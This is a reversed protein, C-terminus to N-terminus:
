PNECLLGLIPKVILAEVRLCPTNIKILYVARTLAVHITASGWKMGGEWGCRFDIAFCCVRYGVLAGIM